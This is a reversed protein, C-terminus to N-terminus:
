EGIDHVRDVVQVQGAVAQAVVDRWRRSVGGVGSSALTM